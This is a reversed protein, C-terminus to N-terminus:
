RSCSRAQLRNTDQYEDVLVHDFRDGVDRALAPEAMMQSWYLLLDDYDLVNQAQKATSTARRVAADAGGDWQACWPFADALVDDLPAEANVVRSYIALCTGKAPFRSKTASLGLDHRVLDILDEADGRDISAHVVRDLGIARPTSACCGRASAHFTGAWPLAGRDAARSGPRASSAPRQGVRREM